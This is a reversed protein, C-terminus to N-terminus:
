AAGDTPWLHGRRRGRSANDPLTIDDVEVAASTPSPSGPVDNRWVLLALVTGALAPLHSLMRVAGVTGTMGDAIVYGTLVASFVMGVVAVGAAVAPRLAALLLAAGLGASWATSEHVLHAMHGHHAGLDAGFGQALALSIQVLGVSGLAIRPWAKPHRTAVPVPRVTDPVATMRTRDSGALGRLLQMQTDMEAQWQRCEGCANLHEDVRIAPVPEREGDMRASLAERAVECEVHDITACRPPIEGPLM